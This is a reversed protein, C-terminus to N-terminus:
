ICSWRDVFQHFMRSTLQSHSTFNEKSCKKIKITTLSKSGDGDGGFSFHLFFSGGGWTTTFQHLVMQRRISSVHSIHTSFTFHFERKFMKQNKNDYPIKWWRWGWRIFFTSLVGEPQQSCSKAGDTSSNVFHALHANLILLLIRKQVNEQNQSVYPVSIYTVSDLM